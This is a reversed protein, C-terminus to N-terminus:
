KRHSRTSRSDGREHQQEMSHKSSRASDDKKQHRDYSKNFFVRSDETGSKEVASNDVSDVLGSSGGGGGGGVGSGNVGSSMVHSPHHDDYYRTRRKEGRADRKVYVCRERDVGRSDRDRSEYKYYSELFNM